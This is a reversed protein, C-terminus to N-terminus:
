QVKGQLGHRGGADPDPFVQSQGRYAGKIRSLSALQAECFEIRKDMCDFVFDWVEISWDVQM